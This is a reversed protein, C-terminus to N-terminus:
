KKLKKITINAKDPVQTICSRVVKGDLITECSQCVGQKCQFSLRLGSRVAALSLPSGAAIKVVQNNDLNTVTVERGSFARISSKMARMYGRLGNVHDITIAALVIWYMLTTGYWLM